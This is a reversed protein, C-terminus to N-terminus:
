GAAYDLGVDLAKASHTLAGVSVRDVGTAAIASLSELTVGGSAELEVDLAARDRLEAAARLEDITMNDLLVIEPREVLVAALQELSDVEVEIILDALSPEGPYDRLFQRAQRVAAAATAPDDDPGPFQARHNDKILV